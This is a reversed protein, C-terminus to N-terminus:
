HLIDYRHKLGWNLKNNKKKKQVRSPPFPGHGPSRVISVKMRHYRRNLCENNLSMESIYNVRKVVAAKNVAM